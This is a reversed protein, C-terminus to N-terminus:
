FSALAARKITNTATCAYVYNADAWLQGATCTASSSAPTTQPAVPAQSFTNLGTFANAAALRPVVSTVIDLSGGTYALAGSPGLNVMQTWNNTSSCTYIQQGAPQDTAFYLTGATCTTPISALPGAPVGSGGGSGGTITVTSVATILGKGNVTIVPVTTSSGYSGPNSNVTALTAPQSGSGSPTTVDGTLQTIGSGGGGGGSLAVPTQGTVLGKGNTTVQCVHTADGCVGPSSNVTALTLPQSGSGSPTTGDGTLQTIGGGGGGGSITATSVGTILGKGNVTLVPVTTSSGYTGPNSNVTALNTTTSGAVTSIDGSLAPMSGGPLIGSTIESADISKNTLMQADSTGVVTGAPAQVATTTNTGTRVVLGNVGPDALGPSGSGGGGQLVWTNPSACGYLNQGVPATSNFFLDGTSCTGPLATGTKVPRTSPANSFDVNRGQTGLNIMTPQQQALAVSTIMATAFATGALKLKTM